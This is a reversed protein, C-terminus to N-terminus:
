VTRTAYKVLNRSQNATLQLILVGDVFTVRSVGTLDASVDEKFDFPSM